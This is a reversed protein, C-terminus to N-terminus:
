LDALSQVPLRLTFQAGGLPHNGATLTGGHETIVRHTLALGVGHGKPKTTFFPIFIKQLQAPSIGSGSDRIEIQVWSDGNKDHDRTSRVSVLREQKGEPIAEAANRLLNLFSQRLMREDAGVKLPQEDHTIQLEVDSERYLAELESACDSLLEDIVVEELQLPQPRAFNLFATVMTSLSRVENLLSAAATQAKDNLDLTQLLQVYGHLAAVANKFEHALGASMEGLSELNKKLAVQERLETVETIDMLLCLAGHPGREPPMEIPAITAGLWRQQGHPTIAEVETRRYITGNRLCDSVMTLLEPYKTLLSEFSEGLSTGELELLKRAPGNVAMSEGNGDFALLGSPLSAIIREGFKEASSARERAEASLRELEKRQEQLQAVVSQFTELVFEAEDQSKLLDAKVSAREAENVLRQYPRLLWRLIFLMSLLGGILIAIFAALLLPGRSAPTEPAFAYLLAAIIVALLFLGTLMTLGFQFRNSRLQLSTLSTLNGISRLDKNKSQGARLM